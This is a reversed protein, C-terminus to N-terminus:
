VVLAFDRLSGGRIAATASDTPSVILVSDHNRCPHRAQPSTPGRKQAAKVAGLQANAKELDSIVNWQSGGALAVLDGYADTVEASFAYPAVIAVATAIDGTALAATVAPRVQARSSAPVRALLARLATQRHEDSLQTVPLSAPQKGQSLKALAAELSRMFAVFDPAASHQLAAVLDGLYDHALVTLNARVATLDVRLVLIDTGGRLYRVVADIQEGVLHRLTTPPLVVKLNALVVQEPVPLQALLDHRIASSSPDLLVEDYLREYAHQDDLVRQYYGIALVTRRATAELTLTAVCVVALVAAFARAATRAM